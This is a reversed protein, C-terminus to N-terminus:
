VVTVRNFQEVINHLPGVCKGSRIVSKPAHYHGISKKATRNLHELHLDGSINTGPKGTTNICRSWLLQAKQRPSLLCHYQVLLTLAEICYNKRGATKIVLLFYKWVRMIRIGDGEKIADKFESYLLCITILEQTYSYVKDQKQPENAAGSM